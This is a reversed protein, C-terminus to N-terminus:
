QSSGLRTAGLVALNDQLILRDARDYTYWCARRHHWKYGAREIARVLAPTTEGVLRFASEVGNLEGYGEDRFQIKFNVGSM